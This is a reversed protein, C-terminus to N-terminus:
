QLSVPDGRRWGHHGSHLVDLGCCNGNARRGARPQQADDLRLVAADAADFQGAAAQAGGLGAGHRSGRADMGTAQDFGGVTGVQLKAADAGAGFLRQDLRQQGSAQTRIGGAGVIHAVQHDAREGAEIRAGKHINRRQGPLQEGQQLALRVQMGQRGLEGQQQVAAFGHRHQFVGM